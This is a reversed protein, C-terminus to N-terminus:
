ETMGYLEKYHDSVRMYSVRGGMPELIWRENEKRVEFDSVIDLQVVEGM